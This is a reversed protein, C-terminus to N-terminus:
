PNNKTKYKKITVLKNEIKNKHGVKYIESDKKSCNHVFCLNTSQKVHLGTQLFKITVIKEETSFSPQNILSCRLHYIEPGDSHIKSLQTRVNTHVRTNM